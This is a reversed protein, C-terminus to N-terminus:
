IKSILSDRFLHEPGKVGIIERTDRGRNERLRLYPFLTTSRDAPAPVWPGSKEVTQATTIKHQDGDESFLSAEKVHPLFQM